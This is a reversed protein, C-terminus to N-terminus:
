DAPSRVTRGAVQEIYPYAAEIARSVEPTYRADFPLSGRHGSTVIMAFERSNIRDIILKQDWRGRNALEAFIAPEWPVEKGARLLLVMDDSLVPKKARAIRAL